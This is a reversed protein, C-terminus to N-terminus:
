GAIKWYEVLIYSNSLYDSFKVKLLCQSLIKNNLEDKVLSGISKLDEILKSYIGDNRLVIQITDTDAVIAKFICNATRTYYTTLSYDKAIKKMFNKETM